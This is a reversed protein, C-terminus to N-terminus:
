QRAAEAMLRHHWRRRDKDRSTKMMFGLVTLVIGREIVFTHTVEGVRWSGRLKIHRTNPVMPGAECVFTDGGSLRWPLAMLQAVMAARLTENSREVECCAVVRGRYQQIAHNSITFPPRADTM